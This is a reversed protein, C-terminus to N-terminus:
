ILWLRRLCWGCIKRRLEKWGPIKVWTVRSARHGWTWHTELLLSINSDLAVARTSNLLHKSYGGWLAGVSARPAKKWSVGKRSRCLGASASRGSSRAQKRQPWWCLVALSRLGEQWVPGAHWLAIWASLDLPSLRDPPQWVGVGWWQTDSHVTNMVSCCSAAPGWSWDSPKFNGPIGRLNQMKM